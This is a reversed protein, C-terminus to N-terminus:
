AAAQAMEGIAGHEARFGVDGLLEDTVPAQGPLARSRARARQWVDGVPAVQGGQAAQSFRGEGSAERRAKRSAQRGTKRKSGAASELASDCNLQHLAFANQPAYCCFKFVVLVAGSGNKPKRRRRRAIRGGSQWYRCLQRTCKGRPMPMKGTLKPLCARSTASKAAHRKTM